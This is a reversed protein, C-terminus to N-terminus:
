EYPNHTGPMGVFMYCFTRGNDLTVGVGLDEGMASIMTELHGPSNVWNTVAKEAARRPGVGIFVTLNTGFGHPYGADRVTECEVQNHHYTYLHTSCTLDFRGIYPSAYLEKLLQETKEASLLKQASSSAHIWQEHDDVTQALVQEKQADLRQDVTNRRLENINDHLSNLISNEERYDEHESSSHVEPKVSTKSM